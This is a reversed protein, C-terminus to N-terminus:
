EKVLSIAELVFVKKPCLGTCKGCSSCLAAEFTPAAKGVQRLAGVPCNLVAKCIHKQPCRERIVTLIKEEMIIEMGGSEAACIIRRTKRYYSLSYYQFLICYVVLQIIAQVLFTNSM